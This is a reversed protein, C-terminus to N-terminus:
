IVGGIRKNDISASFPRSILKTLTKIWCFLHCFASQKNQRHILTELLLFFRRAFIECKERFFHECKNANQRERFLEFIKAKKTFSQKLRNRLNSIKSIYFHSFTAFFSHLFNALFYHSFKLFFYLSFKAFFFSTIRFLVLVNQSYFCFNWFCICFIAFIAPEHDYTFTHPCVSVWLHSLSILNEKDFM